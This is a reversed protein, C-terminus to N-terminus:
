AVLDVLMGASLGAEHKSVRSAIEGRTRSLSLESSERAVDADEIRSAAAAINEM